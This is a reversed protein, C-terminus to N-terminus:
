AFPSDGPAPPPPPPVPAYYSQPYPNFAALIQEASQGQQGMQFAARVAHNMYLMLGYVLLAIATPACYCTFMSGVGAIISVLGLTRGRFRYNKIAAIIRLVGSILVPVGIVFYVVAIGWFFLEPPEDAPRNPNKAQEWRMMTPLLVGMGATFLGMPIEMMGQVANLVAFIRVQSVWGYDSAQTPGYAPQDQFHKADFAPPQYPNSMREDLGKTTRV